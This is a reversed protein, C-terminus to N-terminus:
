SLLESLQVPRKQELSMVAAAVMGFSWLNDAIGCMPTRRDDIAEAFERLVGVRDFGPFGEASPLTPAIGKPPHFLLGEHDRGDWDVSGFEGRM